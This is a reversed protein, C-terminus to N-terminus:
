VRDRRESRGIRRSAADLTQQAADITERSEALVEATVDPRTTLSRYTRKLNVVEASIIKREPAADPLDDLLREAERWLSLVEQVALAM